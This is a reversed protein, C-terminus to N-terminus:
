GTRKQWVDAGEFTTGTELLMKLNSLIIPWGNSVAVIFKSDKAAIEHTITLKVADEFQELEYTARATGEEKLEPRFQNQWALVLRSPPDFELVEGMDAVRGDPLIMKWSSGVKWDCEQVVGNWYQKTFEPERLADWLKERTTRIYIVYVFKSGSM